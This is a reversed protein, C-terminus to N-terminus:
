RIHSDLWQGIDQMVQQYNIDNHSEHYGEPYIRLTKDPFTLKDFFHRSGESSNLRDAGGHLILIPISLDTSHEKVWKLTALSETGWRVSVIKHGLSDAIYDRVVISDRSMAVSEFDLPISFRPMFRSLLRALAVKYPKAIGIPEFPAGNIIAGCLGAPYRLVYDLSILAGLSHGMLFLKAGSERSCVLDLFSQLDGSYDSWKNIHGRQGSSHGHGRLDFGYVAYGQATLYNVVNSYRGSHDGVGSLLILILGYIIVRSLSRCVILHM